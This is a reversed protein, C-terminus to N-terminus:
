HTPIALLAYCGAIAGLVMGKEFGLCSATYCAAMAAHIVAHPDPQKFKKTFM